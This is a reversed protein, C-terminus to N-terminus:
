QDLELGAQPTEDPMEAALGADIEGAWGAAIIENMEEITLAREPKAKGDMTGVKPDLPGFDHNRNEYSEILAVLLATVM